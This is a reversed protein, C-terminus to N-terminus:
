ILKLQTDSSFANRKRPNHYKIELVGEEKVGFRLNAEEKYWQKSAM